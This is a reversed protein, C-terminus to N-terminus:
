CIHSLEMKRVFKLYNKIYLISVLQLERLTKINKM